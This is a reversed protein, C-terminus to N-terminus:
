PGRSGAARAENLRAHYAGIGEGIAEAIRQRYAPTAIRGAEARNSLFGAEVLVAPCDLPRLVAFRARKLGRDEGELGAVLRSHVAAGLVASWHDHRNAPHATRDAAGRLHAATSRQGAPTFTYTEIGGVKPQNPLANFHLSLFLDAGLRNALEARAQLDAAQTPKLRTDTGRTLAVRYGRRELERRLRQAVDLTLAKEELKLARNVTGPDSGGHGPDIVIFELAGPAPVAAPELLPRVIARWDSEALRLTGGRAAVPEGLFLRLGNWAAERSGAQFELTTWRSQLRLERGPKTWTAKLGYRRGIDALGLGTEKEKKAAFADSPLFAAFLLGLLLRLLGGATRGTMAVPRGSM